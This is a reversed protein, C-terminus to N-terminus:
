ARLADVPRMRAATRTPFFAALLTLVSVTAINGIVQAPPVSFTLYGNKLLLFFQSDAGFNISSLVLMVLGAGVLGLIAGGIALFLAELLFLQRVGARQMGLARMTGIEKVREYMIMRFTNTIGVMIIFFLILLIVFGATNLIVVIQQVESLIENLTYLRIRSGEWQEEEAQSFLAMVPNQAEATDDVSARPFVDLRQELQAFLAAASADIYSLDDLFIGMTQYEGPNITLLENVYQMDAYSSISGVLGPDYSIAGIIFDGVNQQGDITSMRVIVTDGLEANLRDAIRDTVIIANAPYSDNIREINEFSGATLILRERLYTEDSFDLGVINQRVSRGQLIVAGNFASRKTIFQTPIQAAEIASTIEKDDRIISRERGDDTKEVGAIFIHGALLHSFNEGVNRVFAGTFGNIVTVVLIGFAIAGGLLVTRKKQRNLNRMAMRISGM